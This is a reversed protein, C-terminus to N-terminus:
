RGIGKERAVAPPKVKLHGAEIMLGEDDPKDVLPELIEGM